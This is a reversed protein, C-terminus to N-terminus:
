PGDAAAFGVLADHLAPYIGPPAAVVLAPGPPAGALGTVLLGAEEAVLGGAAHDWLNLGKEFYADVRGEAAFCLDLAASGFRRIDRIRPLLRAVVEAQYARREATYGFGTAV